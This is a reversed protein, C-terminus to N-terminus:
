AMFILGTLHALNMQCVQGPEDSHEAQHVPPCEKKQGPSVARGASPFGNPVQPTQTINNNCNVRAPMPYFSHQCNM